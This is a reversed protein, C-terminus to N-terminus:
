LFWMIQNSLEVFFNKEMVRNEQTSVSLTLSTENTITLIPFAMTKHTIQFYRWYRLFYLCDPLSIQDTKKELFLKIYYFCTPLVKNKVYKPLGRSPCVM